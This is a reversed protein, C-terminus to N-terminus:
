LPMRMIEQYADLLKNRVQVMLKLSLEAKEMLIMTGHLDETEGTALERIAQDAQGQLKNVQELAKELVKDFGGAASPKTRQPTSVGQVERISKGFQVVDM